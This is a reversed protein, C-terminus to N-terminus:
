RNLLQSAPEIMWIPDDTIQNVALEHVPLIARGLGNQFPNGPLRLPALHPQLRHARQLTQVCMMLEALSQAFFIPCYGASPVCIAIRVQSM